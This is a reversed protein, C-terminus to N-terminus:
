LAAGRPQSPGTFALLRAVHRALIDTEINVRGGVGVRGLTTATLTEPILSVEFWASGTNADPASVASITLSVGDVTVSGKDVLLPALEDAVAFRVTHSVEGPAISTVTATGDIHGQVIHGGLRTNGAVAREMNVPDGVALGGLASVNMTQGMVEASFVTETQDVVTLCVGAVSISAGHTADSTVVPADITIRVADDDLRDLSVIRGQEEVLGTFM